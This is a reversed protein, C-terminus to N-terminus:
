TVHVLIMKFLNKNSLGKLLQGYSCVLNCLLYKPYNKLEIRNLMKIIRSIEKENLMINVDLLIPKFYM